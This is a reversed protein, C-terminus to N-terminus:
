WRDFNFCVADANFPEGDHFTVGSQLNFTWNLGDDSASWDTALQPDGRHKGARHHGVDRLDALQRPAVRRRVALAPDLIRPDNSAGFVLTGGSTQPGVSAPPATTATANGAAAILAGLALTAAVVRRGLHQRRHM